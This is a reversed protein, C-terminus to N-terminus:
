CTAITQKSWRFELNNINTSVKKKSIATILHWFIRNGVIDNASRDDTGKNTRCRLYRVTWTKALITHTIHRCYTYYATNGTNTRYAGDISRDGSDSRGLTGRRGSKMYSKLRERMTDEKVNSSNIEISTFSLCQFRRAHRNFFEIERSRAYAKRTQEIYNLVWCERKM